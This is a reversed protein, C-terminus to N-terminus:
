DDWGRHSTAEEDIWDEETYSMGKRGPVKRTPGSHYFSCSKPGYCFTEFRYRKQSPNWHDIVMEVPMRCGWICTLCKSDYIRADLRCHGRNRYIELDPPVGHFPPGSLPGDEVAKLIKLGSTKYFGAPEVRPDPVAISLGSVETNACFRHKKHAAKGIAIQFGGNVDGCTGDIRLVYGLYSHHREDFSRMLRIRPYVSAVRGSWDVKNMKTTLKPM